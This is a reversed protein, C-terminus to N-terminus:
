TEEANRYLTERLSIMQAKVGDTFGMAPLKPIGGLTRVLMIMGFEAAKDIPPYEISLVTRMQWSKLGEDIQRKNSPQIGAYVLKEIVGESVSIHVKFGVVVHGTEVRSRKCEIPILYLSEDIADPLGITMTIDLKDKEIPVLVGVTSLIFLITPVLAALVVSPIVSFRVFQWLVSREGDGQGM